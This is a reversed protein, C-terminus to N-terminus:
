AKSSHKDKSHIVGYIAGATGSYVAVAASLFIIKRKLTDSFASDAEPVTASSPMPASDHHSPPDGSVPALDGHTSPAPNDLASPTTAVPTPDHSTSGLPSEPASDQHLSGSRSPPVSGHFSATHQGDLFWINDPLQLYPNAQQHPLPSEYFSMTPSESLPPWEDTEGSDSGARKESSPIMTVDLDRQRVVAPAALAVDAVSVILLIRAVIKDQRM